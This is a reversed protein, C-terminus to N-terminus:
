EQLRFRSVLGKMAEAQGSLEQSAAASEEATSSNTQIVASIQDVGITVQQISQAQEVSAKAIKEINENVVASKEVIVGLSRATEDAIKSGAAVAAISGEILETTDKAAEASKQALSRVEDAVVAFGKGAEGARAAEVAANLALINTQFAIDDITKIIKGIEASKDSIYEMAAMMKRMHEQGEAIENQTEEAVKDAITANEANTQVQQSIQNITQSLQQISAAQMNAGDSLEQAGDAVQDSGSAVQDSAVNIEYLTKSMASSFEHMCKDINQFAGVFPVTPSAINFDGNQMMTLAHDIDSIYSSLTKMSKRMSEAMVGLEDKSTYRIETDLIGQSLAAAAKEVEEVPAVIGKTVAVAVALSFICAAALLALVLLSINNTNRLHDVTTEDRMQMTTTDIEKAIDVLDQLAPACETLLMHRAEEREGSEIKDIIEYGIATWAELASKYKKLLQMDGEFHEEFIQVNEEIGAVNADVTERYENYKGTDEELYMDRITRAAVNTQIRCMKVATDAAVPHDIFDNFERNSWKLGTLALLAILLALLVIVAYSLGLRTKVRLNKMM